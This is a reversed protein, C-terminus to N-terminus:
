GYFPDWEEESDEQPPFLKAKRKKEYEPDDTEYESYVLEDISIHNYIDFEDFLDFRFDSRIHDIALIFNSIENQPIFNLATKIAMTHGTDYKEEEKPVIFIYVYGDENSESCSAFLVATLISDSVDLWRTRAGFHQLDAMTRVLATSLLYDDKGSAGILRQYYDKSGHLALEKVTYLSPTRYPFLKPEGRYYINEANNHELSFIAKLISDVSCSSRNGNIYIRNYDSYSITKKEEAM